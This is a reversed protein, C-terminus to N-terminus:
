SYLSFRFLLLFFWKWVMFNDGEERRKEKEKEKTSNVVQDLLSFFVDLLFRIFPFHKIMSIRKFKSVKGYFQRNFFTKTEKFVIALRSGKGRKSITSFFCKFRKKDKASWHEPTETMSLLDIKNVALQLFIQVILHWFELIKQGSVSDTFLNEKEGKGFSFDSSFYQTSSGEQQRTETYRVFLLVIVHSGDFGEEFNSMGVTWPSGSDM